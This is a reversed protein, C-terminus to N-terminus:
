EMFRVARALGDSGLMVEAEVRDSVQEPSVELGVALMASRPLEMRVVNVEDNPDIQPANPLPIFGDDTEETTLAALEVQAPATHRAAPAPAPRKPVIWLAFGLAAAAFGAAAWSLAPIRWWANRRQGAPPYAARFAEILNAEVRLPAGISGSDAALMELGAALRREQAVLAACGACEAVHPDIGIKDPALEAMRNRFEECNM